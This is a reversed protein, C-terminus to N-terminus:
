EKIIDVGVIDNLNEKAMRLNLRQQLEKERTDEYDNFYDLFELLSIQRNEFADSINHYLKYYDKYFEINTNSSLKATLLLKQYANMVDNELKNSAQQMNAEEQKVQFRASKINGQNRDWIPLPFGINLGYYNPTYTAHQDFNVGVTVDPIALAKQLSYVQKQSQLQYTELQYDTNHQKASDLIQLFILNSVDAAEFEPTIPEIFTTGKIGLLTKLESENDNLAKINEAFEQQSSIILAQVRLYEKQAINGNELQLKMGAILKTLRQINENYLKAIDQEQAITYFDSFLTARLTRMVSRFQWEALSVNTKAINIQKRRKGATKILQEIDVSVEGVPNANGASDYTVGHKFYGEEKNYLNQGTGLTPNDWKRAQIVLAEASQINYHQALLQLNKELFMKEASVIDLKITDQQSIDQAQITETQLLCM